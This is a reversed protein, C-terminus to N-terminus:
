NQPVMEICRRFEHGLFGQSKPFINALAIQVNKEFADSAGSKIRIDALELIM